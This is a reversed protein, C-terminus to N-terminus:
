KWELIEKVSCYEWDSDETGYVIYDYDKKDVQSINKIEEIKGLEVTQIFKHSNESGHDQSRMIKRAEKKSNAVVFIKILYNIRYLKMEGWNLTTGVPTAGTYTAKSSRHREIRAM